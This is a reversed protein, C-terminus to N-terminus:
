ENQLTIKDFEKSSYLNGVEMIKESLVGAQIEEPFNEEAYEDISIQSFTDPLGDKFEVLVIQIDLYKQYAYFSSEDSISFIFGGHNEGM